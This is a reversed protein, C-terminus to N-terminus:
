RSITVIQGGVFDVEISTGPEVDLDCIALAGRLELAGNGITAGSLGPLSKSEVRKEGGAAEIHWIDAGVCLRLRIKTGSPMREGCTLRGASPGLMAYCPQLRTGGADVSDAIIALSQPISTAVTIGFLTVTRAPPGGRCASALALLVALAIAIPIAHM